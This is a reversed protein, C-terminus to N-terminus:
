SVVCYKERYNLGTDSNCIDDKISEGSGIEVGKQALVHLWLLTALLGIEYYKSIFNLAVGGVGGIVGAAYDSAWSEHVRGM